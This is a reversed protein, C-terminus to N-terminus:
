AAVKQGCTRCNTPKPAAHEAVVSAVAEAETAFNGLGHSHSDSAYWRGNVTVHTITGVEAGDAEVTWLQPRTTITEPM